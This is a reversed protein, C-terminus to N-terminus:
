ASRGMERYYDAMTKDFEARQEPTLENYRPAPKQQAIPLATPASVIANLRRHLERIPAAVEELMGALEAFAPFWEFRKGAAFATEKTFCCPPYEALANSYVRIKAKADAVTMNKATLTGVMVLWQEITGLNAPGFEGARGALLRQADARQEATVSEPKRWAKLRQRHPLQEGSESVPYVTEYDLECLKRLTPPLSRTETLLALDNM